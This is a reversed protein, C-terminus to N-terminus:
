FRVTEVGPAFGFDLLVLGPMRDAALRPHPERQQKAGALPSAIYYRHPALVDPVAENMHFLFLGADLQINRYQRVELGDNCVRRFVVDREKPCLEALWERGRTEAIPEAVSTIFGAQRM